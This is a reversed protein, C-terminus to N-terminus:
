LRRYSYTTKVHALFYANVSRGISNQHILGEVVDQPVDFYAYRGGSHFTIELTNTAADFGVERINGSTVPVRNMSM